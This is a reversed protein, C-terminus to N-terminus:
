MRSRWLIYILIVIFVFFLFIALNVYFPNFRCEASGINGFVKETCGFECLSDETVTLNECGDVDCVERVISIRLTSNDICSKQTLAYVNAPLLILVLLLIVLKKAV